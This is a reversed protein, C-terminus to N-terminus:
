RSSASSWVPSTTGDCGAPIPCTRIRHARLQVPTHDQTSPHGAHHGAARARHRNGLDVAGGSALAAPEPSAARLVPLAPDRRGVRARPQRTTTLVTVDANRESVYVETGAEDDVTFKHMPGQRITLSWQDPRTLRAVHHLRNEPLRVFAAAITQAQAADIDLLLEGTDAFVTTSEGGGGFRYAPRGMVTLLTVRIRGM